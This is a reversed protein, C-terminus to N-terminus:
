RMGQRGQWGVKGASSLNEQEKFYEQVEKYGVQGPKLARALAQNAHAWQKFPSDKYKTRAQKIKLERQTPPRTIEAAPVPTTEVPEEAPPQVVPESPTDPDKQNVPELKVQEKDTLTKVEPKAAELPVFRGGVMNGVLKNNRFVQNNSYTTEAAEKRTQAELNRKGIAEVKARLRKLVAASPKVSQTPRVGTLQKAAELQEALLRNVAADGGGAKFHRINM